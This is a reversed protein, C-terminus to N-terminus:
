SFIECINNIKILSKIFFPEGYTVGVQYGFYQARVKLSEIFQKNSIYTAPEDSQPNYFQSAFSKVAEMKQDFEDTIEVVFSANDVLHQYYYIVNKARYAPYASEIKPLGSYFNSESILNSANTHDPHRDEFYPALIISPQYRRISDIVKLRNKANNEVQGDTICLNDRLHIGLQESAKETESKRLDVSGRTSLEAQTLDVIGIKYGAKVMKIITGGCSLEVDDPHASFALIDVKM